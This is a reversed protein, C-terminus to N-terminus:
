KLLELIAVVIDNVYCFGSAEFKKAHHLGGAWNIAIDCVQPPPLPLPSLLHLPHSRRVGNNLKAAGELSAGTYISCFDYLGPFVPSSHHTHDPPPALLM